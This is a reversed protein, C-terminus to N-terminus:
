KVGNFTMKDSLAGYHVKGNKDKYYARIKWTVKGKVSENHAFNGKSKAKVTTLVKWNGNEKLEYIKYGTAGTVKDWSVYLGTKNKDQKINKVQGLVIKFKLTKSGSYKGKFTIKVKYTGVAKRGSAYKVTYDTGKILKNGKSDKVIVSPKKESGNYTYTTKSLAISKIKPVVETVQKGCESCTKIIKGNKSTTAKTVVKTKYKHNVNKLTYKDKNNKAFDYAKSGKDAYITLHAFAYGYNLGINSIDCDSSLVVFESLECCSSFAGYCITKVKKPITIKRIDTCAFAEAGIYTLNKSLKVEKLFECEKFAYDQISTVSDPITIAEINTAFFCALPITKVSKGLYVKNLKECSGFCEVGLTELGDPLIVEKLLGCGAFAGDGIFKLSDPIEVNELKSSEFFAFKGIKKLSDSLYVDEVFCNEFARQGIEVVTDPMNYAYIYGGSPFKLLVTKDKNFLVGKSDSTYSPNNKDVVIKKIKNCGYFSGISKVTESIYVEELAEYYNCFSSNVSEVGKEITIKKVETTKIATQGYYMDGTGSIVLECTSSDFSWYLDEGCQGSAQAAYTKFAFEGSSETLPAIFLMVSVVAVAMIFNSFSNKRKM